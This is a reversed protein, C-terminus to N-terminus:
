IKDFMVPSLIGVPRLCVLQSNVLMTSSKFALSGHIFGALPTPLSSSPAESDCTRCELREVVRGGTLKLKMKCQKLSMIM